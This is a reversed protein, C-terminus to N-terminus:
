AAEFAEFAMQLETLEAVRFVREAEEKMESVEQMNKEMRELYEKKANAAREEGAPDAIFAPAKEVCVQLNIDRQDHQLIFDVSEQIRPEDVVQLRGGAWRHNLGGNRGLNMMMTTLMIEELGVDEVRITKIVQYSARANYKDKCVFRVASYFLAWLASSSENPTWHETARSLPNHSLGIYCLCRPIHEDLLYEHETGILADFKTYYVSILSKLWERHAKFDCQNIGGGFRRQGEYDLASVDGSFVTDIKRAIDESDQTDLRLYEEIAEIVSVMERLTLGKGKDPGSTRSIFVAYIGPCHTLEVWPGIRDAFAEDQMKSPLDGHLLAVVLDSPLTSLTHLIRSDAGLRYDDIIRHWSSHGHGTSSTSSTTTDPDEEDVYEDDDSKRKRKRSNSSPKCIGREKEYEIESLAVNYIMHWLGVVGGVEYSFALTRQTDTLLTQNRKSTYDSTDLRAKINQVKVALTDQAAKFAALQDALQKETAQFSELRALTEAKFEEITSM